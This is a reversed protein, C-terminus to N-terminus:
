QWALSAERSCTHAASRSGARAIRRTRSDGASARHRTPPFLYPYSPIRYDKAHRGYADAHVAFNGAGADIAIAGDRGSDVTSVAGLTEVMFPRPPLADPIRNNEVNVVGGIAQSGWRLTAPGRIVEIRKAGLPDITM